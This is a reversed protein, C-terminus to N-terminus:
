SHLACVPRLGCLLRGRSIVNAFRPLASIVQPLRPLMHNAGLKGEPFCTRNIHWNSTQGSKTDMCYTKGIYKTLALGQYQTEYQAMYTDPGDNLPTARTVCIHMSMKLTSVFLVVPFDPYMGM